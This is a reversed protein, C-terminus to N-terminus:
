FYFKCLTFFVLNSKDAMYVVTFSGAMYKDQGYDLVSVFFADVWDIYCM